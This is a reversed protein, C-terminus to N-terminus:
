APFETAVTMRLTPFVLTAETIKYAIGFKHGSSGPDAIASLAVGTAGFSGVTGYTLLITRQVQLFDSNPDSPPPIPSSEDVPTYSTLDTPNFVLFEGIERNQGRELMYYLKVFRTKDYFFKYSESPVVAFTSMVTPAIDPATIPTTEDTPITDSRLVVTGLDRNSGNAIAEQLTKIDVTVQDQSM